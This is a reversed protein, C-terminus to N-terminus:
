AGIENLIQRTAEIDREILATDPERNMLIDEIIKIQIQLENWVMKKYEEALHSLIDALDSAQRRLNKECEEEIKNRFVKGFHNKFLAMPILFWLLEIQTDFTYSVSVDPTIDRPTEAVLHHPPMKIGTTQEVRSSLKHTISEHFFLYQRRIKMHFDELDPMYAKVLNALEERLAGALWEEYWRVTRYLNGHQNKYAVEFKQTLSENLAKQSPLLLDETFRRIKKKLDATILELEATIYPTNTQGETIANRLALNEEVTNQAARHALQLFSECELALTHTKHLSVKNIASARDNQLPLLIKRLLENRYQNGDNVSYPQIIPTFYLRAALSSKLFETIQSLQEPGFLDAKTLVIYTLPAYRRIEDILSLDEDALPREASIAVLAAGINVLWQRTADSNHSFISGLGPTDALCIGQFSEMQPVYINAQQVEKHNGPNEKEVIYKPLEELPIQRQVGNKFLIIGKEEPGYLIRTIVSTVPIVGTPLLPFGLIHNILSSKGSKFQGLVAVELPKGDQTNEVAHLLPLLSDYKRRDIIDGLIHIADM